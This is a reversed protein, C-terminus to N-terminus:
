FDLGLEEPPTDSGTLQACLANYRQELLTYRSELGKCYEIICARDSWEKGFVDTNFEKFDHSLPISEKIFPRLTDVIEKFCLTDWAFTKSRTVDAWCDLTKITIPHQYVEMVRKITDIYNQKSGIIPTDRSEIVYLGTQYFMFKHTTPYNELEIVKGYKTLDLGIHFRLYKIIESRGHKIAVDYIAPFMEIDDLDFVDSLIRLKDLEGRAVISYVLFDPEGLSFNGETIMYKFLSTHNMIGSQLRYLYTHDDLVDGSNELDQLANIIRVLASQWFDYMKPTHTVKTARDYFFEFVMHDKMKMTIIEPNLMTYALLKEEQEQTRRTRFSNVLDFYFLSNTLAGSPDGGALKVFQQIKLPLVHSTTEM